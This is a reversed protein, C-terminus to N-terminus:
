GLQSQWMMLAGAATLVVCLINQWSASATGRAIMSVQILVFLPSIWAVTSLTELVSQVDVLVSASDVEITSLLRQGLLAMAPITLAVIWLNVRKRDDLYAV